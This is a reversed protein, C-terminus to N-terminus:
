RMRDALELLETLTAAPASPEAAQQFYARMAPEAAVARALFPDGASPDLGLARAEASAELSVTAARVVDAAARHRPEAVAHLTRSVSQTQDIAPFRGARALRESLVLHGDLAARAAEGVPDHADPGDSLVTAVITLSGAAFAGGRELLRAMLAFVSPPYGARGVPEGVALALERQAACTRALSDLVLLVDLGRGRLADAQAVAIEAARVREAASRDATACVVTTRADLGAICREAERGREGVLGVVVADADAGRVIQDLLTSKGAGAAGFLGIRAGRAFALPGDIARVGTWCIERVARRHDSGGPECVARRAGRPRPRGDLPDGGASVARGLLATGLVPQVAFPDEAVPTGAAIGELAGFPALLARGESLAIVRGALRAGIRVGAGIRAFPLRAEVVNGRTAIVEGRARGNM